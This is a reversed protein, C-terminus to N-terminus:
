NIGRFMNVVDEVTPESQPIGDYENISEDNSPVGTDKLQLRYLLDKQESDAILPCLSIAMETDIYGDTLMTSINNVLETDNTITRRKFKIEVEPIGMLSLINQVFDAVQWEFIDTKLDFDTKAVNIAVNTLSGGQVQKMNLTMSDSYMNDELLKLAYQKAAYPIEVDFKQATADDQNVTARWKEIEAVLERADQGGFNKIAWYIGEVTTIGDVLDSSIFDYADIMSKLGNTFESQKLENAYLPFIPLVEYSDTSIIQTSLKDSYITQKYPILETGPMLILEDNDNSIYQSIGEIEYLEVNLPKDEDLQWFRIGVMPIGTREDFLAFFETARFHILRDLNWFGWNVGDVLTNIGMTQIDKDFRPGLRTKYEDELTVGNGLLYQSLQKCFKPFFGSCIKHFVIKSDIQGRRQLYNLRSLIAENKREYYRQALKARRYTESEQYEEIADLIIEEKVDGSELARSFDQYSLM